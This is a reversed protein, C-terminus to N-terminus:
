RGTRPTPSKAASLPNGDVGTDNALVGTTASVTLAIDETATYTINQAVPADSVDSVTVYVTAPRAAM